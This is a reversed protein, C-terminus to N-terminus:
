RKSALMDANLQMSELQDESQDALTANRHWTATTTLNPAWDDAGRLTSFAISACILYASRRFMIGPPNVAASAVGEV